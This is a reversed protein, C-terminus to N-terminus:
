ADPMVLTDEPLEAGKEPAKASDSNNRWYEDESEHTMYRMGLHNELFRLDDHLEKKSLWPHNLAKAASYRKRAEVTLLCNILNIADNGIDKWPKSPYMFAANEIQDNIDEDENFPFTGSLTVYIIVGVSWLDLSRNYGKNKVVEPALYAPTGVMTKRFTKEGIIRSFGFDCLKAQLCRPDAGGRALLVNEPKLDCHAIMKSHLHQLAYVIQAVLFRTQREELRGKPSSLVTELMDSDMKEMVIFIRDPTEFMNELHVVGPYKVSQLIEVENKLAAEHKSSFRRKDIVKIAICYGKKRHVGAYVVGFQGSGLVEDPFVQYVSSIDKKRDDPGSPMSKIERGSVPHMANLLTERWSETARQTLSVKLAQSFSAQSKNSFVETPPNSAMKFISCEEPTSVREGIYFVCKNDGRQIEVEFVHHNLKVETANCIGMFSSLAISELKPSARARDTECIYLCRTSLSWFRLQRQPNESTCYLVWGSLLHEPDTRRSKRQSMFIRQLPINESPLEAAETMTDADATDDPVDIDGDESTIDGGTSGTELLREASKKHMVEQLIESSCSDAIFKLCGRHVNTKCDKCQLGQRFLGVLMKKCYRCVTPKKFSHVAFRHPVTPRSDPMELLARDIWAPRGLSVSRSRSLEESTEESMTRRSNPSVSESARRNSTPTNSGRRQQGGYESACSSPRRQQRPDVGAAPATGPEAEKDPQGSCNNPVNHACRKHFNYHCDICQFGQRVLGFLMQGCYDCFTPAKYSHVHLTHSKLKDTAERADESLVVVVAVEVVEQIQDFNRLRTLSEPDGDLGRAFLLINPALNVYAHNPFFHNLFVCAQETLVGLSTDFKSVLRRESFLGSQFKVIITDADLDLSEIGSVDDSNEPEVLEVRPPQDM